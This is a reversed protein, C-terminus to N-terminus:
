KDVFIKSKPTVRVNIIVDDVNNSFLSIARSFADDKLGEFSEAIDNKVIAFTPDTFFWHTQVEVGYLVHGLLFCVEDFIANKDKSSSTLQREIAIREKREMNECTVSLYM